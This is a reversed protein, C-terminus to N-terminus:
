KVIKFIICLCLPFYGPFKDNNETTLFASNLFNIILIKINKNVKPNIYITALEAM